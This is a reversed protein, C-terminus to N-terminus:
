FLNGRGLLCGPDFLKKIERMEALADDGVMRRFYEKKIKGIGHEASVTGGWGLIKDVLVDYVKRASDIEDAAPLLNIHLHNDGIHGFAVSDLECASLTDKYFRMMEMFYPDPVAMDTGLKVRGLRNNEENVLLPLRHRFEHFKRLDGPGQSFWSDDLLVDEDSLFEHWVELHSDYERMDMVAQEFFLAAGSGSPLNAFGPGLKELSRKDFYELSCPAIGEKAGQRINEVLRWCPEEEKFFLIGSLFGEPANALKLVIDTFIGLTGDSGIFLDLWDMGPQIFYGATNKCLPSVYNIEPFCTRAGDDWILPGTIKQGRKIRVSRGDVLVVEAELVFDRTAGYKYSRPGSANTSLTGGISALAETPNPPYFWPTELLINQLDALTVAPGVRVALNDIKGIHNLRELSVVKGSLPIRSATVGTGAGAITIPGDNTKLFSVLEAADEPIIVEVASGGSFNSADRLYPAISDPDTKRLM